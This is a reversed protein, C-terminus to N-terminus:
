PSKMWRVFCVAVPMDHRSFFAMWRKQNDQLRDGPGKVELMRYRRELPWFQILDPFGSRNGPIDDLLRRFWKKLHDPPICQLAQQLLEPSLAPWHVFACQLGAKAKFNAWIVHQYRNSDLLALCSEFHRQRRRVFDPERLDAPGRQFPHFFAGALPAFLADWCLLGFLANILANETYHAPADDRHVHRRAVEEVSTATDDPRAHITLSEPPRPQAQIQVPLGLKRRLRPYIRALQQAEADSVPEGLVAEASQLAQGYRLDRELVRVQRLRSESHSSVKYAQLAGEWDKDRECAQGIRFLLKSRRREIWGNAYAQTPVCAMIARPSEGELLRGTCAHLHLYDDVDQRHGLARCSATFGVKEYRLLGLDSLVFESWDQRLNGFFMLRFRECLPMILLECVADSAQEWWSSSFFTQTSNAPFGAQALGFAHKGNTCSCTTQEHAEPPASAAALQTYLASKSLTPSLGQDAFARLIETKTFLGFLQQLNLQPNETVWGAQVLPTVASAVCGIEPYRLRSHRFLVGRRMVMRVLLARSAPPLGRYQQIFGHEDGNLVDAYRQGVWNLVFEFNDRYYFPNDIQAM